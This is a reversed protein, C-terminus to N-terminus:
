VKPVTLAMLTYINGRFKVTIVKEMYSNLYAGPINVFIVDRHKRLKIEATILMSDTAITPSVADQPNAGARYKQGDTCARAKLSKDRNEKLFM